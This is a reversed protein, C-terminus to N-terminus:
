NWEVTLVMYVTYEYANKRPKHERYWKLENIHVSKPTKDLKKAGNMSKLMPDNTIEIDGNEIIDILDDALQEVILRAIKDTEWVAIGAEGILEFDFRLRVAKGWEIDQESKWLPQRTKPSDEWDEPVIPESTRFFEEVPELAKRVLYM